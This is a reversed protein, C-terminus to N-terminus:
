SSLTIIFETAADGKALSSGISVMHSDNGCIRLAGDLWGGVRQEFLQDHEDTEVMRLVIRQQGREAVEMRGPTYYTRFISATKELLTEVSAMRAFFRYIGRLGDEASFVGVERAGQDGGNYLARCLVETPVFLAPKIPYWESALVADTYLARSQPPLADVLRQLGEQGFKGAVFKKTALVSTGKVQM